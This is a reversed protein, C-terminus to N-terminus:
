ATPEELDHLLKDWSSGTGVSVDRRCHHAERHHWFLFPPLFM